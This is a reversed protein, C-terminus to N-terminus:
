GRAAARAQRAVLSAAAMLLVPVSVLAWRAPRADGDGLALSVALVAALALAHLVIAAPPRARIVM